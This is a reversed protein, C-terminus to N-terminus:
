ASLCRAVEILSVWALYYGVLYAGGAQFMGPAFVMTNLAHSAIFVPQECNRTTKKGVIFRLAISILIRAVFSMVEIEGYDDVFSWGIVM